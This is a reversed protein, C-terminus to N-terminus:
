LYRCGGAPSQRRRRRTGSKPLPLFQVRLGPKTSFLVIREARGDTEDDRRGFRDGNLRVSSILDFPELPQLRYAIHVLPLPTVPRSHRPWYFMGNTFRVLRPFVNAVLSLERIMIGEVGFRASVFDYNAVAGNSKRGGDTTLFTEQTRHLEVLAASQKHHVQQAEESREM